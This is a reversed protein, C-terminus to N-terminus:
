CDLCNSRHIRQESHTDAWRNDVLSWVGLYQCRRWVEAPPVMLADGRDEDAYVEEADDEEDGFGAVVAVEGGTESGGRERGEGGVVEGASLLFDDNGGGGGSLQM